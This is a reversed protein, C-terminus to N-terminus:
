RIRMAGQMDYKFAVRTLSKLRHAAEADVYVNPALFDVCISRFGHVHETLARLEMDTDDLVLEVPDNTTRELTDCDESALSQTTRRSPVCGEFMDRFVPSNTALIGQLSPFRTGERSVLVCDAYRDDIGSM